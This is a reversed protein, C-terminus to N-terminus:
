SRGKELYHWTSRGVTGTVKTGVRRQYTRVAKVTAHDFRGTIYVGRVGAAHLARQLRVVDSGRVGRTLWSNHHGAVLLSIWDGRSVTTRVVRHTKEQMRHVAYATRRGWFGNVRHPYLGTQKLACQLRAHLRVQRRVGTRPYSALNLRRTTCLRDAVPHEAEPTARGPLYVWHPHRAHHRVHHHTMQHAKPRLPRILLDVYNSDINISVGGHRENHGGRYQKVRANTWTRSHLHSSRTNARGNWDAIWIQQPLTMGTGAWRARDLLRIGSTASSYVGSTYGHAHLQQSWASLFRLSSNRCRASSTSFAELDYFITSRRPLGLRRAARVAASAEARGQAQARAYRFAPNASIRHTRLNGHRNCAAQPGVHIPLLKWGHALQTHVWRRTLHHQRKCARSAGSIYVGVGRYPSHRWANMAHQSPASCQDFAKGRFNGPTVPNGRASAPSTSSGLLTAGVLV